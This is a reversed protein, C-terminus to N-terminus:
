MIIHKHLYPSSREMIFEVFVCLQIHKSFNSFDPM